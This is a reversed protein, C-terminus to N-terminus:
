IKRVVLTKLYDTEPIAVHIPHDPGQHGREILQVESQARHAARQIRELLEESSVQMSCSCSFLIGNPVLLKIAMENLRQYALLGESKDKAKKVFAPPDLVIVDYQKGQQVLAKLADFADDCIVNVKDSVNNLAANEQIYKSAPASVEVCDVVKAGAVAAQIGWGGLYSFVDLVRKDKIYHQLRERSMRHDYFWGTKQGKYLPITFRANNEEIIIEEPPEGHIPKVYTTLKEHERIASDNRLLISKTEPLVALLAEVIQAEKAEMGATNIQMVLHEDFRDIVIGPLQDAESFVLRYFPKDFLATRLALAQQFRKKFFPIDLKEDPNRSVLRAAILSHPNVYGVGLVAKDHGLVLVEEGATFSKLPSLTTNIENSFIWPHGGRLRRGENKKLVLPKLSM